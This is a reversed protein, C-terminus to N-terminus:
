EFPYHEDDEPTKGSPDFVYVWTGEPAWDYLWHGDAVPVNVCGHSHRAGLNNHWYEGHIARDRDYYMVWPVDGVYYYDSKDSEFAGSMTQMEYKKKIHFVGPRTWFGPTGSATLTALVMRDGEFASLTQEFLNVSIWKVGAPIEGPRAVDPFVVGLKTQLVWQNIGIMYWTEKETKYTDFIQVPTYRRYYPATQDMPGGPARSPYVGEYPIVWGFPREPNETPVLGSFQNSTPIPTVEDGRVIWGDGTRYFTGDDRVIVQTISVYVFGRILSHHKNGAAADDVNAYFALETGGGARGYGRDLLALAPDQPLAPIGRQPLLGQEWYDVRQPAPGDAACQDPNEMQMEVTCLEGENEAAEARSRVPTGALAAILLVPALIWATTGSTIKIQPLINKMM